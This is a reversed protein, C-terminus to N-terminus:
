YFYFFKSFSSFIPDTGNSIKTNEPVSYLLKTSPPLCLSPVKRVKDQPFTKEWAFGRGPFTEPPTPM